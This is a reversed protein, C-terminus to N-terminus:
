FIWFFTQFQGLGGGGTQFIELSKLTKKKSPKGQGDPGIRFITVAPAMLGRKQSTLVEIMISGDLFKTISQYAVLYIDAALMLLIFLGKLHRKSLNLM